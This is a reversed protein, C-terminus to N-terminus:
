RQREYSAVAFSADDQPGADHETRSVEHWRQPDIPPFKVDGEPSAHVYTIELRDALPLAAAFVDRGGIIMIEDVGRAAADKRALDLAAKFSPATVVGPACFAADRSIVINTRRDLVKGISQFTKRGMVVPKDITLKRFHALDSKLRWPLGGDRGIVGNEGIAVVLVIKM